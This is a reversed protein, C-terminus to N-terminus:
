RRRTNLVEVRPHHAKMWAYANEADRIPLIVIASRVTGNWRFTLEILAKPM